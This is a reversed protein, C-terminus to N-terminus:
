EASHRRQLGERVLVRLLVVAGLLTAGLIPEWATGLLLSVVLFGGYGIGTAFGTNRIVILALLAVGLAILGPFPALGIGAGVATAAGAGGRFRLFLPHWHGVVAAAGATAAVEPVVGLINAVGLALFGKLMDLLLVVGGLPRSVTRFVNAAGPNRTGVMLLNVGRARAIFYAVPVSGLVYGVVTSTATSLLYTDM